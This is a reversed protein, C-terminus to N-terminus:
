REEQLTCHVNFSDTSVRTDGTDLLGGGSRCLTRVYNVYKPDHVLEVQEITGKEPSIFSWNKSRSLQGRELEAIISSLRKPQNRITEARNHKFYNPSFVVATRTM